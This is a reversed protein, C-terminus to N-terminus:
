RNDSWGAMRADLNDRLMQSLKKTDILHQATPSFEQLTDRITLYFPLVSAISCRRSQLEITALYVPRLVETVAEIVSWDAATFTPFVSGLQQSGM